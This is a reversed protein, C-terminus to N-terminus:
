NFIHELHYMPVNVIKPGHQVRVLDLQKEDYEQPLARNVSMNRYVFRVGYTKVSGKLLSLDKLSFCKKRKLNVTIKTASNGKSIKQSKQLM